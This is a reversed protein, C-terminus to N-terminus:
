LDHTPKTASGLVDLLHSDDREEVRGWGIGRDRTCIPTSACMYMRANSCGDWWPLVGTCVMAGRWSVQRKLAELQSQLAEVSQPKLVLMRNLVPEIMTEYTHANSGLQAPLVGSRVAGAVRASAMELLRQLKRCCFTCILFWCFHLPQRESSSMAKTLFLLSYSM